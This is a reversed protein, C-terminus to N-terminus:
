TLYYSEKEEEVLKEGNVISKLKAKTTESVKFANVKFKGPEHNAVAKELKGVSAKKFKTPKDSKFCRGYRSNWDSRNSEREVYKMEYEYEELRIGYKLFKNLREQKLIWLLGKQDVFCTTKCAFVFPRFYAMAEDLALLEREPIGKKMEAEALKRSFYAVHKEKGERKQCLVAGIACKSADSYVRFPQSFDPHALIPTSALRKKLELFM